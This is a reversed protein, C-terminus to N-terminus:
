WAVVTGDKRMETAGVYVGDPLRMIAQYGGFPVGSADVEVRHGMARLQEVTESPVGPEVLLTGLLDGAVGTPQRGGDHNFRGADGATQVDMGFDIINVLVQVHGQPQMAGGMLGFSMFPEGDKMVFAPIITHFPRKGPAYANPHREDLSFLEGRNQLMFGLGDPVLGTGMGRYNSQILSVMMGDADAVTLYTTDGEGELKPEGAGFSPAAREPDILAFREQAYQDSLLAELSLPAFTPDAYYRAVDEFALRKAEVMYHFAQASGRPYDRLDIQKLINLMQLAAFGQGNPPLEYVDYGHYHVSGPTVWEGEHAALDALRMDSGIRKFYADMAEALEGEYFSARGEDGLLELTNALDPNRLVDGPQPTAGNPFWIAAANDLEEILAKQARFAALNRGFYHAIVPTVPFGERAYRVTPALVDSMPLKGFREHAAFWGDVTGPVTVPLSGRQPMGLMDEPMAGSERLAGIQAKLDALSRGLPARGSGNYGYLQETKPDWIIFFIDGGIGNGTPEMLGLAANAAVAADLASGGQKLMDIAIQSALPHATAAMGNRGYVASRSWSVANPRGGGGLSPQVASMELSNKIETDAGCGLLMAILLCLSLRYSKKWDGGYFM